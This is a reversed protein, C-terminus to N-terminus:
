RPCHLRTATYQGGSREIRHQSMARGCMPCDPDAPRVDPGEDYGAGVQAPGTFTRVGRNFLEYFGWFGTKAM